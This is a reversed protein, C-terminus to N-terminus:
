AISDGFNLKAPHGSGKGFDRYAERAMRAHEFTFPVIEIEFKEIMNDLARSTNADSNGDIVICTELYNPSAMRAPEASNLLADRLRPYEPEFYLMAVPASSDVIV